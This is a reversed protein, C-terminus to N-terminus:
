GAGPRYLYQRARTSTRGPMAELTYLVELIPRNGILIINHDAKSVILTFRDDAAQTFLPEITVAGELGLAM